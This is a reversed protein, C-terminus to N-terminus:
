VIRSVIFHETTMNRYIHVVGGKLCVVFEVKMLSFTLIYNLNEM